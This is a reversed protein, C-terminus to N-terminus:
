VDDRGPVDYQMPQWYPDYMAASLVHWFHKDPVYVAEKEGNSHM